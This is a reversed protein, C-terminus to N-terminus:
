NTQADLAGPADRTVAILKARTSETLPGASADGDLGAAINVWYGTVSLALCIPCPVTAAAEIAADRNRTLVGLAVLLTARQAAQGPRHEHATSTM